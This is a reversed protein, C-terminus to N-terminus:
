GLVTGPPLPFGRLVEGAPLAARGPRQLRRLRLAGDGCAVVLGDGDAALVTGPPGAGPGPEAELVRVAEGAHRLATGPWPDFARVRRDLAVAPERWDLAGDARGLKPAHTAGAAPQPVAPPDEALARLMLAAGLAALPDHLAGATARPGIPLAARLLTPGTDLGADMRMITIGTEDDGALVASQIPSAGRWRPLLSAHVNLCGRRPAELMAPPLLLGYAAVVAADLDLAAFAAHAAADGRLRAPARVPLGLALAARHVPCPTERQGRGAPRPPQCYVAAVAHGAAVLAHLVPVAFDPSGLFAVRLPTAGVARPYSTAGSM